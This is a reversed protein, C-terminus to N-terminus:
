GGTFGWLVGVVLALVVFALAIAHNSLARMAEDKWLGMGRAKNYDNFADWALILLVITYLLGPFVAFDPFTGILAATVLTIFVSFSLSVWFLKKM